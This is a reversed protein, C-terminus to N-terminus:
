QAELGNGAEATFHSRATTSEESQRQRQEAETQPVFQQRGRGWGRGGAQWTLKNLSPLILATELKNAGSSVKTLALWKKALSRM